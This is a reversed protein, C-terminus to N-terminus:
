QLLDLEEEMEDIDTDKMLKRYQGSLYGLTRVWRLQLKEADIGDPDSDKIEDHVDRITDAPDVGGARARDCIAREDLSPEPEFRLM